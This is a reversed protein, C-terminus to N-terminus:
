SRPPARAQDKQSRALGQPRAQKPSHLTAARLANIDAWRWPPLALGQTEALAGAELEFYLLRKPDLPGPMQIQGDPVHSFGAKLYFPADGILVILTHGLRKAEALSIQMLQTGVGRGQRAPHVALPGLLLAPTQADGVQLPWFSIAAAIGFGEERIVVSLKDIARSGERLRYSTKTRRGIGFVLDLLRDIEADDQPLHLSPSYQNKMDAARLTVIALAM